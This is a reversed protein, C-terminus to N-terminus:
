ARLVPGISALGRQPAFIREPPDYREGAARRPGARWPAVAVRALVAQEGPVRDGLSLPNLGQQAFRPLEQVRHISRNECFSPAVISVSWGHLRLPEFIKREADDRLINMLM